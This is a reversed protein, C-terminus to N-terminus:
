IYRFRWQNWKQVSDRIRRGHVVTFLRAIDEKHGQLYQLVVILDRWLQIKRCALCAKKVAARSQMERQMEHHKQPGMERAQRPRESHPGGEFPNVAGGTPHWGWIHHSANGGQAPWQYCYWIAELVFGQPFGGTVLGLHLVCWGSGKSGLSGSLM